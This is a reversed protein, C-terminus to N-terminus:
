LQELDLAQTKGARFDALAEEALQALRDASVALLQAWRRDAALEELLWAALADQEADPLKSAEAFAQELRTTVANDRRLEAPHTATPRYHVM